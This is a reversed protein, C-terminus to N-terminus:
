EVRVNFVVDAIQIMDGNNIYYQNGAELGFGNLFTGNSSGLDELTYSGDMKRIVCHKRSVSSSINIVGQANNASKGIIFEKQTIRFILNGMESSHELFLVGSVTEIINNDTNSVVDGVRTVGFDFKQFWQTLEIESKSMDMIVYFLEAYKDPNTRFIQSCFMALSNRYKQQWTMNEHFDCDDNVPLIICKLLRSKSSYYLRVFNVDIAWINIFDNNYVTGIIDIFQKMYAIVEAEPLSEIVSALPKLDEINYLLKTRGNYTITSYNMINDRNIKNMVRNGLPSINEGNEFTYAIHDVYTNVLM